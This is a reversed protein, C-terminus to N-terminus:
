FPIAKVLYCDSPQGADECESCTAGYSDEWYDKHETCAYAVHPCSWLLIWEVPTFCTETTGDGVANCTNRTLDIPTSAM